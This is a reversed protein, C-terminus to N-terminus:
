KTNFELRAADIAKQVIDGLHVDFHQVPIKAIDAQKRMIDLCQQLEQATLSNKLKHTTEDGRREEYTIIKNIDAM